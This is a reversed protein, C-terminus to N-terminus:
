LHKLLQKRTSAAQYMRNIQVWSKLGTTGLRPTRFWNEPLRASSPAATKLLQAGDYRFSRWKVAVEETSTAAISIPRAIPEGQHTHVRTVFDRMHSKRLLCMMGEMSM